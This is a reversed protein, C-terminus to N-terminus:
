KKKNGRKVYNEKYINVIKELDNIEIDFLEVHCEWFYQCYAWIFNNNDEYWLEHNKILYNYLDQPLLTLSSKPLVYCLQVLDLVPEPPKYTILETNFVPIYKVLDELLPPYHYKYCWRWDYCGKSYYKMTWELGEIYNICIDKINNSDEKFLSVYYRKQWGDSLPNIYKETDRKFTPISDFYKIKDEPIYSDRYPYRKNRLKHEEIIYSEELNSLYKVFKYVNKWNINIGDSLIFSENEKMIAKYANLLKNIGGTRINLAPFHPLFDNGLFFCMFIYDKNISFNDNSLLEKVKITDNDYKKELFSHRKGDTQNYIQHFYNESMLMNIDLYHPEHQSNGGINNPMERFLYINQCINLHNICLMILDADLGYIFTTYKSHLDINNRIFDFIKHEGEGYINSGSVIVQKIGRKQSFNIDFYNNISKDLLKMFETGPTICATNWKILNNNELSNSSNYKDELNSDLITNKIHSQYWSKYRRTRQQELKALPAVGDFAIIVNNDPNILTIYYEIKKIVNDIIINSINDSDLTVSTRKIAKQTKNSTSSTSINNYIDYIISNCDLYLNNVKLFDKTIKKIISPNQKIIYSFYSPIGM